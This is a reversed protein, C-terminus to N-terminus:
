FCAGSHDVRRGVCTFTVGAGLVCVVLQEKRPLVPVGSEHGEEGNMWLYVASWATSLSHTHSPVRYQVERPTAWRWWSVKNASPLTATYSEGREFTATNMWLRLDFRKTEPSAPSSQSSLPIDILTPM